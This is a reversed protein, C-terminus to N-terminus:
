KRVKVKVTVIGATVGVALLMVAILIWIVLSDDVVQKGTVVPTTNAQTEAETSEAPTETPAETVVDAETQTASAEVETVVQTM